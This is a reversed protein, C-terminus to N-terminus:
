KGAPADARSATPKLSRLRSRAEDAAPENPFRDVLRQYLDAADQQQNLREYVKAAELLAAAQWNPADHLIDVKLFERLAERYNKQHFYTEGRMFQARAALEPPGGSAIAKQYAARADDFRAEAQLARGRAYGLEGQFEPVDAGFNENTLKETLPLIEEWKKAAILAQLQRTRATVLWAPKTAGDAVPKRFLEDLIGLADGARDTRLAIEARWFAAEGALSSDPFEAILRKWITDAEIWRKREAENRAARYLAAERLADTLGEPKKEGALEALLRSVEDFNKSGWASEALNVRAESAAATAPYKELVRRFVGDAEGAKGADMLAYAWDSLIREPRNEAPVDAKATAEFDKGVYDAYDTAAAEFKGAKALLRARLLRASRLTADDTAVKGALLTDLRKVADDNKGASVLVRAASLTAQRASDTDGGTMEASKAFAAASEESKGTLALAHGLEAFARAKLDRDTALESARGLWEVARAATEPKNAAEGLRVLTPVLTESKPYKKELTALARAAEGPKGTEWSSIALWSLAHDELRPSPQKLYRDLSEVAEAFKGAEFDSQALLLLPESSTAPTAPGTMSGLLNRAKDNEGLAKYAIALQYSAAAKLDARKTFEVLRALKEAAAATKDEALDLRAALLVADEALASRSADATMPAILRRAAPIDKGEMAIEAARLRADDAWSDEPFRSALKEYLKRADSKRDLAALAEAAQHLLGASAPQGDIKELAPELLALAGAADKKELKMGALRSIAQISQATPPDIAVFKEFAAQADANRGNAVLLEALRFRADATMTGRPAQSELSAVAAVADEVRNAAVAELAIQYDAREAWDKGGEAKLRRFQELAKDHRKQLSYARGLGFVARAVLRGRPFENLSKAYFTEADQPKEQRLALDGAYVLASDRQPHDAPAEALFRNLAKAAQEVDGLLYSAEGVRFRASAANPHDPALLLFDDFAKRAEAYQGLFLKCTALAYTAGAVEPASSKANADLFKRYEEAALDYRRQQYLGNAFKLDPAADQAIALQTASSALGAALVCRGILGRRISGPISRRHRSRDM